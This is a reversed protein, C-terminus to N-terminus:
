SSPANLKALREKFDNQLWGANVPDLTAADWRATESLHPAAPCSIGAVELMMKANIADGTILADEGIFGEIQCSDDGADPQILAQQADEISTRGRFLAVVPQEWGALHLGDLDRQFTADPQGARVRAIHLWLRLSVDGADAETLAAFADAAESFRHQHLFVHARGAAAAQDTPDAAILANLDALELDEKGLSGYLDARDRLAVTFDPSLEIARSLDALEARLNGLKGYCAARDRYPVPYDPELRIAESHDAVALDLQHKMCYNEGRVTHAVALAEDNQRRDAIIATCAAIMQDPPLSGSNAFTCTQWDDNVTSAHSPMRVPAAAAVLLASALLVSLKM